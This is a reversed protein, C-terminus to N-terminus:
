NQSRYSPHLLVFTSFLWLPCMGAICFLIGNHLLWMLIDEGEKTSVWIGHIPMLIIFFLFSFFFLVAFGWFCAVIPAIWFPVEPVHVLSPYFYREIAMLGLGVVCTGM